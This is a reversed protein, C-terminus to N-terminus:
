SPTSSARRSEPDVDKAGPGLSFVRHLLSRKTLSTRRYQYDENHGYPTTPSSQRSQKELEADWGYLDEDPAVHIFPKHENSLAVSEGRVPPQDAIGLLNSFDTFSCEIGPSALSPVEGLEMESDEAELPADHQTWSGVAATPLAVAPAPKAFSSLLIKHVAPLPASKVDSDSIETSIKIPVPTHTRARVRIPRRVLWPRNHHFPTLEKAAMGGRCVGSTRQLLNDAVKEIDSKTEEPSM